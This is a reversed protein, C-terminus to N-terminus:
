KFSHKTMKKTEKDITFAFTLRANLLALNVGWGEVLDGNAEISDDQDM